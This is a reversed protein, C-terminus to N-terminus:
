LETIELAVKIWRLYSNITGRLASNDDAVFNIIIKSGNLSFDLKSRRYPVTKHEFLVSEYVVRAVEENPFEIEISGRIKSM